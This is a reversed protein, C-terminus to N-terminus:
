EKGLLTMPPRSGIDETDNQSGTAVLDTRMSEHMRQYNKTFGRLATELQGDIYEVTEKTERLDDILFWYDANFDRSAAVTRAHHVLRDKTERLKTTVQQYTTITGDPNVSQTPTTYLHPNKRQFEQQEFESRKDVQKGGVTENDDSKALAVM